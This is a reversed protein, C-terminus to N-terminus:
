NGENNLCQFAIKNTLNNYELNKSGSPSMSAPKIGSSPISFADFNRSDINLSLDNGNISLIKANLGNAQWMGYGYPIFLKILQGAIYSNNQTTSDVIITIVMPFARTVAIIELASPIQITGPLYVNSNNPVTM